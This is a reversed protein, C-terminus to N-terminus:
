SLVPLVVRPFVRTIAGGLLHVPRLPREQLARAPVGGTRKTLSLFTKKLPRTLRGYRINALITTSQYILVLLFSDASVFFPSDRTQRYHTSFSWLHQATLMCVGLSSTSALTRSSLSTTSSKSPIRILVIQPM